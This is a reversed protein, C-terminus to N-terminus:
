KSCYFNNFNLNHFLIFNMLQIGRMEEECRIACFSVGLKKHLQFPGSVNLYELATWCVMAANDLCLVPPPIVTKWGMDACLQTLKEGIHKNAAVGGCIVQIYKSKM